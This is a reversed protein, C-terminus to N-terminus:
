QAVAYGSFHDTTFSVTRTARDDLGHMDEIFAKTAPNIHWVTLPGRGIISRRCRSYDLVLTLPKAFQFHPQGNVRVEVEVFRSAPQRISVLALAGLADPPVIIMHGGLSLVGGLPGLVASRTQSRTRRCEILGSTPVVNLSPESEDLPPATTPESCATLGAALALLLFLRRVMTWRDM